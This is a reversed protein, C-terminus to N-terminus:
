LHKLGGAFCEEFREMEAQPLGLTIELGGQEERSETIGLVGTKAILFIDVNLPRGFGFDVEYVKFTL